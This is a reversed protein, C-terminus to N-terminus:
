PCWNMMSLHSTTESNLALGVENPDYDKFNQERSTEEKKLFLQINDSEKIKKKSHMLIIM